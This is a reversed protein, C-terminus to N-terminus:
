TSSPFFGPASFIARASVIVDWSRARLACISAMLASPLANLSNFPHDHRRPESIDIEYPCRAPRARLGNRSGTETNGRRCRRIPLSPRRLWNPLLEPGDSAIKRNRAQKYTSHPPLCSARLVQNHPNHPHSSEKCNEQKSRVFISCACM